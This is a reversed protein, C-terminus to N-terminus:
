GTAGADTAGVGDLWGGRFGARRLGCVIPACGRMLKWLAGNRYNEMMLVIPGQNIGLHWACNWIGDGDDVHFSPNFSSLMGFDSGELMHSQALYGITPLVLEPAFPLSALSAWPAITGDDPGHPAGRALYGYFKRHHGHVEREAPGPGNCATLGWCHGHYDRFGRPNRVAYERHVYTARRSNEFYDIGRQRMYDDQIGRFDIWAHSFQHIFLPGAYVYEQGYYRRWRYGTLWEAYADDAVPFTPSGLALAYLILAESYGIWRYSLFGGEPTWGLSLAAGGNQAWRWDVREYLLRAVDRLATEDATTDDFYQAVALVGALLLATDITSLECQWARRGDEMRLFHYFFGKYGSAEASTSQELGHLFRLSTLAKSVAEARSMWGRGVAVTLATLRFGIAAVSSPSHPQSSDRVLGNGPHTHAPFFRWSDWQLTDLMSTSVDSDM